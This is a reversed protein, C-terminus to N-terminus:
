ATLITPWTAKIEPLTNPLDTGTVDRLAQKQAAISAQHVTDTSEGARMFAIDLAALLPTRATRWRDRQIEQARPINIKAGNTPCFDFADFFDLDIDLSELIKFDCGAPIDQALIEELTLGCNLAPTLIALQGSTQQFAAIM